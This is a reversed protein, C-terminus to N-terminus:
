FPIVDDMDGRKKKSTAVAKPAYKENLARLDERLRALKVPDAPPSAGEGFPEWGVVRLRPTFNQGNAIAELVVIPVCGPHAKAERIVTNLLGGMGRRDGYRACWTFLQGDSVRKLVLRAEEQWPDEPEGKDNHPWKDRDTEPLAERAPNIWGDIRRGGILDTVSRKTSKGAVKYWRKWVEAYSRPDGKFHEDAPIKEAEKGDFWGGTTYVFRLERGVWEVAPSLEHAADGLAALENDSLTPDHGPPPTMASTALMAAQTTTGNGKGAKANTNNDSEDDFDHAQM